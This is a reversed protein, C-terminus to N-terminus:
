EFMCEREETKIQDEYVRVAQQSQLVAELNNIQSAEFGNQQARFLDSRIRALTNECARNEVEEIDNHMSDLKVTFKDFTSDEIEKVDEILTDLADTIVKMQPTYDDEDVWPKFHEDFLVIATGMATLAIVVGVIKSTLHNTKMALVDRYALQHLVNM